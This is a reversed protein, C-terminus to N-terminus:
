HHAELYVMSDPALDLSHFSFPIPLALAVRLAYLLLHLCMKLTLFVFHHMCMCLGLSWGQMFCTLRREQTEAQHDGRRLHCLLM